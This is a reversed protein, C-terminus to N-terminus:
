STTVEPAKIACPSPSPSGYPFDPDFNAKVATYLRDLLKDKDRPTYDATPIPEGIVVKVEGPHIRFAGRPQIFRTGSISVPVLPQGSKIALAMGGKKFPLLQGSAGRTGEPFIAISAGGRVKAAAEELCRVAAQRHSRDVPLSGLRRMAEGLVPISFLEVKALWRLDDPIHGMLVFIDFQSQHNAAYIYPRGPELRELGEVTVQVGGARLLTRAWIRGVTHVRTGRPDFFSVLIVGLSSLFTILVLNVHFWLSRLM